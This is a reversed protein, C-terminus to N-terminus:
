TENTVVKLITGEYGTAATKPGVMLELTEVKAGDGGGVPASLQQIKVRPLYLGIVSKPATELEELMIHLEFETEADFLTMNSFDQRLGTVSGTIRIDNDFIDPTVFSGVVPVGAATIQLDLDFGTFTTVASGNYVITSDDSALLLSTSLTPSTFYPSTGTTLQTRDMGLFTYTVQVPQNPRGTLRMGVLRNGLFLESLDIDTDNQEISFSRRTPTTATVLKRLVTLTGATDASGITFTSAPVSITGSTLAIVQTNLDNNATTSYGSLRFIDGVRVGQDGIWDGAGVVENSGVTVSTVSAFGIAVSTSWTSRMIAQFLEVTMSDATLEGNFSGTVSKGGLRGMSQTGDARKEQSQIPARNLVLGPSDTIRLQTAGTATAVVGTTSEALIAVLVNAATQYSM